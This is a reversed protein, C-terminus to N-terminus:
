FLTIRTLRASKWYYENSTRATLVASYCPTVLRYHQDAKRIICPTVCGPIQCLQDGVIVNCDAAVSGMEYSIDSKLSNCVRDTLFIQCRHLRPFLLREISKLKMRMNESSNSMFPSHRRGRSVELWYNFDQNNIGRRFNAGLCEAALWKSEQELNHSMFSDKMWAEWTTIVELLRDTIETPDLLGTIIDGIPGLAFVSGIIVAHTSLQLGDNSISFWLYRSSSNSICRSESIAYM